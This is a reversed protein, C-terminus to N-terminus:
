KFCKDRACRVAGPAAIGKFRGDAKPASAENGAHTDVIPPLPPHTSVTDTGDLTAWDDGSNSASNMSLALSQQAPQTQPIGASDVGPTGLHTGLLYPAM